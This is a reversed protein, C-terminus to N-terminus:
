FAVQSLLALFHLLCKLLKSSPLNMSVETMRVIEQTMMKINLNGAQKQEDLKLKLADLEDQLMNAHKIAQLLLM